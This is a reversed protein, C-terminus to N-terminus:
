ARVSALAAAVAGVLAARDGLESTSIEPMDGGARAAHAKVREVLAPQVGIAGGLVIREPDAVARVALIAQALLRAVHDITEAAAPDGLELRAFVTKVDAAGQGGLAAYRAVIAQSGIETELPGDVQAAPHFPDAGLPLWAIEGAAGRAGRVLRGDAVLGMGIGTGVAIFAFDRADRGRGFRQEGLAAMNVDNEIMVGCGLSRSLSTLVDIRDFGPLNPAMRVAGNSRDPVGAVAMAAAAVPGRGGILGRAITGIQRIIAEGGNPDTPRAAEALIAGAGDALALRVNTGGLDIGLM